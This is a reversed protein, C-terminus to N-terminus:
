SLQVHMNRPILINWYGIWPYQNILVTFKEQPKQIGFFISLRIM